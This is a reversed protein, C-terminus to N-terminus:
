GRRRRRRSRRRGRRRRERRAGAEDLLFDVGNVLMQLRLRSAAVGGGGGAAAAAAAASRVIEGDPHMTLTAPPAGGATGDLDVDARPPSVDADTRSIQFGSCSSHLIQGKFTAGEAEFSGLLGVPIIKSARHLWGGDAASTAPLLRLIRGGHSFHGRVLYAGHQTSEPYIFHFAASIGEKGDNVQEVHLMLWADRTGCTYKGAYLTDATFSAPPSEAPADNHIQTFGPPKSARAAGLLLALALQATARRM